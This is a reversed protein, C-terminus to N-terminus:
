IYILYIVRRTQLIHMVLCLLHESFVIKWDPQITLSQHFQGAQSSHSQDCPSHLTCPFITLGCFELSPCCLASLVQDLGGNSLHLLQPDSFGYVLGIWLSAWLPSSLFGPRRITWELYMRVSEKKLSYSVSFCLLHIIQFHPTSFCVCLM